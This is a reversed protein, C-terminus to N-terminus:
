LYADVTLTDGPKALPLVEGDFPTGNVLLRPTNAGSHYRVVYTAGRFTKTIGCETWEPPLCPALKLGAVTPKLGFVYNIIAKTLYQTTATRWSQGPTGYRYGTEPGHYFNFLIYPEGCTPAYERNWPLIQKLAEAVKERHGLMAEAMLKWAMPQLYVAQNILTGKPHVTMDGVGGDFGTYGPNNILAGLPTGLNRDVTEMLRARDEESGLGAFVAWTQPNLYMKGERSERSGIKEGADNIAALYYEGDWGFERVRALMEEEMTEHEPILDDRGSLRCLEIFEKNARIWAISLWVSVGKGGLGARNMSDNWDGGWIRILGHLGTFRYLYGIARKLHEFVSAAEGDNFPVEEDLLKVEGLENVLSLATFTIWVANDSFNNMKILGDIFTRPCSGDPYQYTLVRKFREWALEPNFSALCDTDNTMDRYGNHRVRAWRSGLDTAYKYFGNFALNLNEDPTDITVGGIRSLREAKVEALLAEAGQATFASAAQRVDDTTEAHGLTFAVTKSEGPGLVCPVELAFCVKETCAASNTCGGSETLAEPAEKSGYVGVFANQRADFASPRESAILYDYQFRKKGTGFTSATRAIVAGSEADLDAVGFNYGQPTYKGDCDTAAFGVVSLDRKRESLNTLTLIWVERLGDRPVFVTYASRVGAKECTYVSYGLGHRCEYADFSERVPLGVATHFTGSEKDCVYACRDAILRVRRGRDDQCFGEGFGVQSAFSIFEDNFFYNYWHRPTKRETVVYERGDASFHGYERYEM